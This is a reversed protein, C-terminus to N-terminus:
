GWAEHRGRPSGQVERVVVPPTGTRAWPGLLWVPPALTRQRSAGPLWTHSLSGSSLAQTNGTSTGSHPPSRHFPSMHLQKNGGPERWLHPISGTTYLHSSTQPLSHTGWM